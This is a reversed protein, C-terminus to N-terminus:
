PKKFIGIDGTSFLEVTTLNDPPTITTTHLLNCEAVGVSATEVDYAVRSTIIANWEGPAMAPIRRQRHGDTSPSTLAETPGTKAVHDGVVDAIADLVDSWPSVSQGGAPTYTTDTAGASTDCVITWPGSGAVTLVKKRSFAGTTQNFVGVTNGAVPSAEGTYDNDDTGIVFHSADTASSIWKAGAGRATYSPWPTMDAWSASRADLVVELDILAPTNTPELYWISDCEPLADSNNIYTRVAVEQASTPIRSEIWDDRKILFTFCMNGPGNLAPWVFGKEVPVGHGATIMGTPLTTGSVDEVLRMVDGENGHGAPNANNSRCRDKWEDLSETGRGGTIGSGDPLAFVVASDHCGARPSSWTLTSAAALNQGDGPDVSEIPCQDGNLYATATAIAASYKNKTPGHVLEDGPQITTGTTACSITIYGSSNTELQRPVRSGYNYQVQQESMQELPIGRAIVRANQSQVALADAVASLLVYPGGDPGPDIDPNYNTLNRLMFDRWEIQTKVELEAM